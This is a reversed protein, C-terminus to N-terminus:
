SAGEEEDTVLDIGSDFETGRIDDTRSWWAKVPYRGPELLEADPGIGESPDDWRAFFENMGLEDLVADLWCGEHGGYKNPTGCAEPHEVDIGDEPVENVVLHHLETYSIERM